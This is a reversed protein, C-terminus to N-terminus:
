LRIKLDSIEEVLEQNNQEIQQLEAVYRDNKKLLYNRIENMRQHRARILHVANIIVDSEAGSFTRKNEPMETDYKFLAFDDAYFERILRISHDTFFVSSFPILSKNTSYQDLPYSTTQGLHSQLVGKLRAHNEIQIIESYPILDPRLLDGQPTWHVDMYETDEHKTVFELFGQFAQTIDSISTIPLTTFDHDIYPKIQLPERLLLKSQWASFVREYPNRVVAFCFFDDAKFLGALVDPPLGTVDPAIKHFIDHIILDPDSEDSGKYHKLKESSGVLDAFWWKLSTCAVKPTAIYILKHEKSVFFNDSLYEWVKKNQFPLNVQKM